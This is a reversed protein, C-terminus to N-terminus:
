SLTGFVNLIYGHTIVQVRLCKFGNGRATIPCLDAPFVGSFINVPEFGSYNLDRLSADGIM